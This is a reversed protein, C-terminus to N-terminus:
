QNVNTKRQEDKACGSYCSLSSSLSFSFDPSSLSFSPFLKKLAHTLLHSKHFCLIIEFIESNNKLSLM